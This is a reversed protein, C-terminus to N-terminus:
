EGINKTVIEGDEAPSTEAAAPVAEAPKEKKVVTSLILTIVDYASEVILSIGIFAWLVTETGFPNKIIVAACALTVAAGILALFWKKNKARLMDVTQQLKNLGMFLVFIGYIITLAAFTAVFWGSNFACFAGGLLGALGKVLYQGTAAEHAETMFYRVISIVGYVMLAAGFTTIIGTTFGIPDILLLIGVALQALCIIIGNFNKKTKKTKKTKKM